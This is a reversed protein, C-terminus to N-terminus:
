VDRLRPSRIDSQQQTTSDLPSISIKRVAQGPLAMLVRNSAATKNYGTLERTSRATLVPTRM